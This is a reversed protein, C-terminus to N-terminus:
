PPGPVTSLAALMGQLATELTALKVQSAVHRFEVGRDDTVLICQEAQAHGAILWDVTASCTAGKGPTTVGAHGLGLCDVCRKCKAERWADRTPFSRALLAATADAHDLDFPLVGLGRAKMANSVHVLDYHAGLGQRLDFLKEAHVVASVFLGIRAGSANLRNVAKCLEGLRRHSFVANTDLLLRVPQRAREILEEATMAHATGAASM